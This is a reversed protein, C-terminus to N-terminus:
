HASLSWGSSFRGCPPDVLHATEVQDDMELQLKEEDRIHYAKILEPCRVDASAEWCPDSPDEEWGLWKIRYEYSMTKVNFRRGRIEEVEYM